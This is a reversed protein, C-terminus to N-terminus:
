PEKEWCEMIIEELTKERPGSTRPKMGGKELGLVQLLLKVHQVSGTKADKVLKDAVEPV